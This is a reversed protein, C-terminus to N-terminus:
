ALEGNSGVVLQELNAMLEFVYSIFRHPALWQQQSGVPAPQSM